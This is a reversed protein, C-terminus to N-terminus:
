QSSDLHTEIRSKPALESITKLSNMPFYQIGSKCVIRTKHLPKHLNQLAREHTTGFYKPNLTELELSNQLIVRDQAASPLKSIEREYVRYVTELPAVIIAGACFYQPSSWTRVYNSLIQEIRSISKLSIEVELALEYQIDERTIQAIADPKRDFCFTKYEQPSIENECAIGTVFSFKALKHLARICSQTHVSDLFRPPGTMKNEASIANSNLGLAYRYVPYPIEESIVREIFGLARLKKLSYFINRRLCREECLMQITPVTLVRFKVFLDLIFSLNEINM